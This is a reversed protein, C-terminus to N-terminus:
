FRAAAALAFLGGLAILNIRFAIRKTVREDGSFDWFNHFVVTVVVTFVILALTAWGVWLGLIVCVSAIAQIITAITLSLRAQPVGRSALFGTLRDFVPVNLIAAHLFGGGILLRAVLLMVSPLDTPM